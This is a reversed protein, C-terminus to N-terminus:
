YAKACKAVLEAQEKALRAERLRLTKEERAQEASQLEERVSNKSFFEAKIKGFGIEAQQRSKSYTETM